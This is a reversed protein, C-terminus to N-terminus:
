VHPGTRPLVRPLECVFLVLLDLNGLGHLYLANLVVENEVLSSELPDSRSVRFHEHQGKVELDLGRKGRDGEILFDFFDCLNVGAGLLSADDGVDLDVRVLYTCNLRLHSLERHALMYEISRDSKVHEARRGRSPVATAFVEREHDVGHALVRLHWVVRVATNQV